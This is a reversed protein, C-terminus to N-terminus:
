RFAFTPSTTPFANSLAPVSGRAMRRLTWSSLADCCNKHTSLLQTTELPLVNLVKMLLNWLTFHSIRGMIRLQLLREYLGSLRLHNTM